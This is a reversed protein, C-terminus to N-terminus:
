RSSWASSTASMSRASFAAAAVTVAFVARSKPRVAVHQRYLLAAAGCALVFSVMAFARIVHLSGFIPLLAFGTLVVGAINGLTNLASAM